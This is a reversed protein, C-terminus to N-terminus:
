GQFYDQEEFVTVFHCRPCQEIEGLMERDEHVEGIWDCNSCGQYWCLTEPPDYYTEPLKFTNM